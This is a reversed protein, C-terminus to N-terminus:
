KQWHLCNIIYSITYYDSLGEDSFRSLISSRIMCLKPIDSKRVNALIVNEIFSVDRGNTCELNDLFIEKMRSNDIIIAQKLSRDSFEPPAKIQNKLQNIDDKLNPLEKQLAEFTELAEPLNIKAILNIFDKRKKINTEQIINKKLIPILKPEQFAVLITIANKRENSNGNEAIKLLENKYQVEAVGFAYTLIQEWKFMMYHQISPVTADSGNLLQMLLPKAAIPNSKAIMYTLWFLQNPFQLFNDNAVEEAIQQALIPDDLGALMRAITLRYYTSEKENKLLNFMKDKHHEINPQIINDASELEGQLKEGDAINKVKRYTNAAQSVEEFSAKKKQAIKMFHKYKDFRAKYKEKSDRMLKQFLPDTHLFKFEPKVLIRNRSEAASYNLYSEIMKMALEKKGEAAYLRASSIDWGPYDERNKQTELVESAINFNKNQLALNFLTEELKYYKGSKKIVDRQNTYIQYFFSVGRELLNAEKYIEALFEETSWFGGYWNYRIPGKEIEPELLNLAKIFKNEEYFKQSEELIKKRKPDRAFSDNKQKLLLNFIEAAKKKDAKQSKEQAFTSYSNLLLLIFVITSIMKKVM